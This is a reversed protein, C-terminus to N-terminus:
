TKRHFIMGRELRELVKARQRKKYLVHNNEGTENNIATEQDILQFEVLHFIIEGFKSFIEDANDIQFKKPDIRVPLDVIFNIVKYNPGSFENNFRLQEWREEDEIGIDFQLKDKFESLNSEREMLQRFNVLTNESQGPVTYNFPFIYQCMDILTPIIDSENEVVIRYRLKDFIQTALNEKKCLLKTILSDMTKRGGSIEVVPVGRAVVSELQKKVKNEILDTVQVDSIPLLLLLQRVELHFIIHMVKLLMCSFLANHREKQRSAMLFLDQVQTPNKVRPPIECQMVEELYKCANRQLRFIRAIDRTFDPELELLRLFNDVERKNSFNLRHWDIVSGGRLILRIMELLNLGTSSLLDNYSSNVTLSSITKDPGSM